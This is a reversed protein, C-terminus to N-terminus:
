KTQNSHTIAEDNVTNNEQNTMQNAIDINVETTATNVKEKESLWSTAHKLSYSTTFAKIEKDISQQLQTNLEIIMSKSQTIVFNSVAQEISEASAANASTSVSAGVLSGILILTLSVNKIKSDTKNTMNFISM